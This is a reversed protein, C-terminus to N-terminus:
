DDIIELLSKKSRELLWLVTGGDALNTAFYENGQTDYGIIAVSELQGIADNLIRDPPLDLRTIGNLQVVKGM